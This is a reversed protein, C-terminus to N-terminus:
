FLNYSFGLGMTEKFQLEAVQEKEYLLQLYLNLSLAGILKLGLTHEWNLDPSKWEEHQYEDSRSNFLAQYIQLKNSYSVNSPAFVNKYESVFELGGDVTTQLEREEPLVSVLVDRNLNQRFAAGFRATWLENGRQIFNRTIGASETFKIPNIIRTLSPDSMDLFQSEARLGMFPNVFTQMTMKMLAEADIKDTSKEPHAWYSETNGLIDTREKQQHTQGFALKLTNINFFLPSLQKEASMNSGAVWTISGNETGAWNNSYANQTATFNVDGKLTWNQADLISVSLIILAALVTIKTKM